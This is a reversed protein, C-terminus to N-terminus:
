IIMGMVNPLLRHYKDIIPHFRTEFTVHDNDVTIWESKKVGYHYDNMNKIRQQTNDLIFFNNYGVTDNYKMNLDIFDPINEKINKLSIEKTVKQHEIFDYISANLNHNYYRFPASNRCHNRTLYTDIKCLTGLAFPMDLSKSARPALKIIFKEGHDGWIGFVNKDSKGETFYKFNFRSGMIELAPIEKPAKYGIDCFQQLYATVQEFKGHNIEDPVHGLEFDDNHYIERHKALLVEEKWDPRIELLESISKANEFRKDIYKTYAQKYINNPIFSLFIDSGVPLKEDFDRMFYKMNRPQKIISDILEYSLEDNKLITNLLTGFAEKSTQIKLLSNIAPVGDHNIFWKYEKLMKDISGTNINCGFHVASLGKPLLTNNSMTSNKLNQRNEKTNKHRTVANNIKSSVAQVKM